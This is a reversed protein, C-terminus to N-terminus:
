CLKKFEVSISYMKQIEKLEEIRDILDHCIEEYLQQFSKKLNLNM